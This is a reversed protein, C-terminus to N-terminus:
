RKSVVGHNAVLAFLFWMAFVSIVHTLFFLGFTLLGLVMPTRLEVAARRINMLAALLYMTFVSAGLIGFEILIIHYGSALPRLVTKQLGSPNGFLQELIGFSLFMDWAVAYYTVRQVRSVSGSGFKAAFQEGYDIDLALGLMYIAAAALSILLAGRVDTFLYYLLFVFAVVFFTSSGIMIQCIFLLVTLYAAPAKTNLLWIVAYCVLLTAAAAGQEKALGRPRFWLDGLTYPMEGESEGYHIFDVLFPRLEINSVYFDYLIFCAYVIFTLTAVSSYKTNAELLHRQCGSLGILGNVLFAWLLLRRYDVYIFSDAFAYGASYAAFAFNFLIFLLIYRKTFHSHLGLLATYTAVLVLVPTDFFVMGAMVWAPFLILFPVHNLFDMPIASRKATRILLDM